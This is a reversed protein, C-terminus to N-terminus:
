DDIYVAGVNVILQDLLNQPLVLASEGSAECARLPIHDPSGPPLVTTSPAILAPKGDADQAVLWVGTPFHSHKGCQSSPIMQDPGNAPLLQWTSRAQYLVASYQGGIGYVPRHSDDFQAASRTSFLIAALALASLAIRM